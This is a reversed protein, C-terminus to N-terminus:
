TTYKECGASHRVTVQSKRKWDCGTAKQSMLYMDGDKLELTVKNGIEKGETYWKFCLPMKQGLRVAIVKKRESDGHYGIGCKDARYYYNGEVVLDTAKAGLKSLSSRLKSLVPVTDFPVIRGKGAEYDPEQSEAGFCLNWRAHKNVVRGYMKAKKDMDLGVQENWLDDTSGLFQNVGNRIILLGAEEATVGTPLSDNLRIPETDPFQSAWTTLEEMTFGVDALTGIKQMGVHNEAQDGFTLTLTSTLRNM